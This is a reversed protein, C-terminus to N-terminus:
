VNFLYNCSNFTNCHSTSSVTTAGLTAEDIYLTLNFLYKDRMHLKLFNGLCERTGKGLRVFTVTVPDLRYPFEPAEM